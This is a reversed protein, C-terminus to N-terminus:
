LNVSKTSAPKSTYLNLMTVVVYKVYLIIVIIQSLVINVNILMFQHFYLLFTQWM